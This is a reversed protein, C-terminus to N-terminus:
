EEKVCKDCLTKIWGGGRAEGPRGCIECIKYSDREAQEILDYIKEETTRLFRKRFNVIAWYQKGLKRSFMNQQIINSLKNSKTIKTNITVYYFRLGGFKEKVQVAVVEINKNGIIKTIDECLNYILKFWGDSCSLGWGMCTNRIDGGYEKFILPYKEVLKLELKKDM